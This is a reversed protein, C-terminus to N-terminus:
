YLYLDAGRRPLFGPPSRTVHAVRALGILSRSPPSAPSFAGSRLLAPAPADIRRRPGLGQNSSPGKRTQPQAVLIAANDRRGSNPWVPTLIVLNDGADILSQAMLRATM